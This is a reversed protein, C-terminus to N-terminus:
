SNFRYVWHHRGSLSRLMESAQEPSEPKGLIVRDKVVITDAAIVINNVKRRAVDKAKQEALSCVIEGPKLDEDIVEDITSPDVTCSIGMMTFLKKRRPSASALTVSSM